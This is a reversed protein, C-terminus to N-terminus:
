RSGSGPSRFSRCSNTARSWRMWAGCSPRWSSCTRTRSCPWSPSAPPARPRACCPPTAPSSRPLGGTSSRGSFRGHLREGLAEVEEFSMLGPAEYGYMGRADYYVVYELGPLRDRVELVKDVQEQDEAVIVRAEAAELMRALEGAISDQYLGIPLLGSAQAALEAIVWEPRNDGIIAIRDGREIGLESLGLSFARVRGLYDAWTVEQWIGFEKERLAVGDPHSVAHRALLGPLTENM